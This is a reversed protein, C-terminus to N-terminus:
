LEELALALQEEQIEDLGEYETATEKYWITNLAENIEANPISNGILEHYRYVFPYQPAHWLNDAADIARTWANQMKSDFRGPRDAFSFCEHQYLVHDAQAIAPSKEYGFDLFDTAVKGKAFKHMIMATLYNEDEEINPYLLKIPYIIDGFYAEGADHLLAELAYEEPVYYSMILSHHAVTYDQRIGGNYRLMRGLHWAIDYMHLTEPNTNIVDVIEGSYMRVLGKDYM